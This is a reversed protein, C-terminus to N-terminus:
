GAIALEHWVTELAPASITQQGEAYGILLALDCLRNIRRAVGHTLEFLTGLAAQEFLPRHAGAAQLRHAVYGATEQRTLPAVLCTMALREEFAPARQALLLLPPQGSLILTLAPSGQHQFNMLLRLSELGDADLLHAEDVAVVAHRGAQANDSLFREIQRVSECIPPCGSRLDGGTLEAALYALLEGAPMQPFVLHAFPSLSKDLTDRLMTLALTKGSGSPGVLLAGSRRSEVAYRLKLLAAQHSQGPFYFPGEAGPEFPKHQLQWFPEYM